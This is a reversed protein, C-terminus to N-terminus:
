GQNEATERSGSGSEHNVTGVIAQGGRHIHVHEVIMKQEGRSRHRVLAELQASNLKLLKTARAIQADIAPGSDANSARRLFEM